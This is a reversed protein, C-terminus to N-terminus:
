RRSSGELQRVTTSPKPGSVGSKLYVFNPPDHKVGEIRKFKIEGTIGENVRQRLVEGLMFALYGAMQQIFSNAGGEADKCPERHDTFIVEFTVTQKM